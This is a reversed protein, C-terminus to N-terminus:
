QERVGEQQEQHEGLEQQVLEVQQAELDFEVASVVENDVEFWHEQHRPQPPRFFRIMPTQTWQNVSEPHLNSYYRLLKNIGVKM